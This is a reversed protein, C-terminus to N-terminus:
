ILTYLVTRPHSARDLAHGIEAQIRRPPRRDRGREHLAACPSYELACVQSRAHENLFGTPVFPIGHHLNLHFHCDREPM